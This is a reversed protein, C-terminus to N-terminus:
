GNPNGRVDRIHRERQEQREKAGICLSATPRLLLRRLGIPKAPCPMVEDAAQM